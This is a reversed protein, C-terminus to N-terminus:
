KERFLRSRILEHILSRLGYGGVETRDLIAAIEARDGFRVPSGTAYLTLRELLNRAIQRDRALLLERFGKVNAFAGGDLMEGSPDVPLGRRYSIPKSRRDIGEVPDGEKLSRYRDRWQGMVDFSELAFGPPDIKAHCGACAPDARHAALQARITTAGSIDPEVAPVAEPPPPAPDGLLRDLVFTGRVVPSTTTGNATVKLVAATTLLGGRVAGPGSGPVPVRRFDFGEVGDIGYLGALAQNLVLFDSDAVSEAPLDEALMAQFFRYPEERVSEATLPKWEPYLNEDPETLDFGDLDLWQDLFHEAFRRSRPDDLLRDTQAALVAPEALSGDDAAARLEGDPISNWLFLSLREALAHPGLEGGAPGDGDAPVPEARVLLFDPSCLVARYGALMADLFPAGADLKGRVVARPLALDREGIPRRYARAVFGAFLRDAAAMPDAPALEYDLDGNKAAAKAEAPGRRRMPVDGFLAEHSAPPWQHVLPGEIEFWKFAVGPLDFRTFRAPERPGELRWPEASAVSYKPNLNAGIRCRLEATAPENPPLTVTGLTGHATSFSVAAPEDTPRPTGHDNRFAFGNVRLVYEGAASTQLGKLWSNDSKWELVGVGDFFPAPDKVYGPDRKAFDGPTREITEDVVLGAASDGILPMGASVKLMSYFGNAEEKLREMDGALDGISVRKTRPRPRGFGPAVAQRLAEDAAVLYREILVPSMDLAAASKALGGEDGDPPLADAIELHPLFLLDRLAAEYEARNLRRVTARGDARRVEDDAAVLRAALEALAADTEGAPPAEVEEPPPMEGKRVRDHVAVWARRAAPDSLDDSLAELNLGGEQVYEGHCDTCRAAVFDSLGGSEVAGRDAAHADPAFVAAGCALASLLRPRAPRSVASVLM